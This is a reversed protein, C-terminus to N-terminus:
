PKEEGNRPAIGGYIVDFMQEFAQEVAEPQEQPFLKHQAVFLLVNAFLCRFLAESSLGRRMLGREEAVAYFRCFTGYARNFLKEQILERIDDHYLMETLVVRALSFMKEMLEMRDWIIDHLIERLGRGQCSRLMEEIPRMVADAMGSLFRLTIAHLMSKKTPFYRFITGEAVGAAAAIDRTTAASYGKEAFYAVAADLIQSQRDAEDQKKPM